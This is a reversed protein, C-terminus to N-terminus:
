TTKFLNILREYLDVVIQLLSYTKLQIKTGIDQPIDSFMLVNAQTNSGLLDVTARNFYIYGGFGQAGMHPKVKICEQGNITDFGMVEYMHWSFPGTTNFTDNIQGTPSPFDFDQFWETALTVSRKHEYMQVKINDFTDLGSKKDDVNTIGIREFPAALAYLTKPWNTPNAIFEPGKEQWTFGIPADSQQLPGYAIMAQMATLAPAGNIDSYGLLKSVMAICWNEDYIKQDIDSCLQRIAYGFCFNTSGQDVPGVVDNIDFKIPLATVDPTGFLQHNTPHFQPLKKPILGKNKM